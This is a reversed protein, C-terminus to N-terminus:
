YPVSHASPLFCSFDSLAFIIHPMGVTMQTASSTTGFNPSRSTSYGRMCASFSPLSLPHPTSITRETFQSIALNRDCNNTLEPAVRVQLRAFCEASPTETAPAGNKRPQAENKTKCTLGAEGSRLGEPSRYTPRLAAM